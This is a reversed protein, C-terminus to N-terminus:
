SRSARSGCRTCRSRRGAPPSLQALGRADAASEHGLRVGHGLVPGAADLRRPAASRGGEAARADEAPRRARRRGSAERARVPRRVHVSPAVLRRLAVPDHCTAHPHTGKSLCLLSRMFALPAVSYWKQKKSKPHGFPDLAGAVVLNSPDVAHVATAVANVMARYTSATVPNLDLSLNPENWVQFVHEAPVGPPSATTTRRSLRRSSRRPRRREADRRQGREAADHVGLRAHRRHRPDADPGGGRGGRRDRRARELQLRAVDPRDRRLRESARGARDVEVAGGLRVYTAGPRGRGDPLGHAQQPSEFTRDFFATRLPPTAPTPHRAARARGRQPRRPWSFSRALRLCGAGAM